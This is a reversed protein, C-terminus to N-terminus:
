TQFLKPKKQAAVAKPLLLGPNVSRLTAIPKPTVDALGAGEM